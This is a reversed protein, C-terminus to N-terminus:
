DIGLHMTGCTTFIAGAEVTLDREDALFIPCEFSDNWQPPAVM